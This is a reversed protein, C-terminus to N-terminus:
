IKPHKENPEEQERKRDKRKDHFFGVIDDFILLFLELIDDLM